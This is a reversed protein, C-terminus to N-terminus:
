WHHILLRGLLMFVDIDDGRRRCLWGCVAEREPGFVDAVDEQGDCRGDTDLIKQGAEAAEDFDVVVVVSYGFGIEEGGVAGERDVGGLLGIACAQM